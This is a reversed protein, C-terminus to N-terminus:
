NTGRLIQDRWDPEPARYRPRPAAIPAEVAAAPGVTGPQVVATGLQGAAPIPAPVAGGLAPRTGNAAPVQMAAQQSGAGAGVASTGPGPMTWTVSRRALPQAAVAVRKRGLDRNAIDDFEALTTAKGKARMHVIKYGKQRLAALLGPLAEATSQQIDHFLLIGKKRYALQKLIEAHVAPASKSKYDLSDVDISFNGFQRTEAYGNMAKTDALFPFRFFPAIPQGAAAAVASFGLEMEHRAKLPTLKRLNAHSWTHTGVTHGKRYIQKVMEPDAVAQSGVMFFTAKTCEGELADVVAQTHRRLPGDDFTLVVEGDALFDLEKHQQSGFKPGSSTDIEVIRTVGIARSPDCVGKPPASAAQHAPVVVAAASLVLGAVLAAASVRSHARMPSLHFM